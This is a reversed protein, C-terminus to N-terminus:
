LEWHRAFRPPASNDRTYVLGNRVFRGGARFPGRFLLEGSAMVEAYRTNGDDDVISPADGTRNGVETIPVADDDEDDEVFQASREMTYTADFVDNIDVDETPRSRREGSEVQTDLVAKRAEAANWFAAAMADLTPSWKELWADLASQERCHEYGAQNSFVGNVYYRHYRQWAGRDPTIHVTQLQPTDVHATVHVTDSGLSVNPNYIWLTGGGGANEYAFSYGGGELAYPLDRTNIPMTAGRRISIIDIM